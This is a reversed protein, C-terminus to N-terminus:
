QQKSLETLRNVLNQAEPDLEQMKGFLKVKFEEMKKQVEPNAMVRARSTVINQQLTKAEDALEHLRANDQAAQAAAVDAKLTEAREALAKFEPDVTEMTANIDAYAAQIAPDQLAQQQLRGLRAQIQEAETPAAAPAAAEPAAPAAPSEQGVLQSPVVVIAATVVGARLIKSLM